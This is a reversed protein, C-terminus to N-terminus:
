AAHLQWIGANARQLRDTRRVTLDEISRANEQTSDRNLFWELLADWGVRSMKPIGRKTSFPKKSSIKWSKVRFDQLDRSYYSDAQNIEYLKKHSFTWWGLVPSKDGIAPLKYVPDVFKFLANALNFYGLQIANKYYATMAVVSGPQKPDFLKKIRIPTVDIGYYADMGCSERFLGMQYSKDTNVKFGQRILADCAENYLHKPIIIDDGYVYVSNLSEGQSMGNNLFRATILAWFTLAEVPFTLANGMPAFMSLKMRKKSFPLRMFESRTRFLGKQFDLPTDRFLDQVLHASVSDSAASLDITAWKQTKSGEQALNRPTDQDSFMVHGATMPHNEIYPYLWRRLAQQRAMLDQPEASIMRPGRSDKPVAYGIATPAQLSDLNWYYEWTDFRHAESIHYLNSTSWSDVELDIEYKPVYREWTEQREASVGPGPRIDYCADAKFGKLLTSLLQQAVYVDAMGQADLRGSNLSANREVLAREFAVLTRQDYPLQLKYFLAYVQRLSRICLAAEKPDNRLLQGTDVDFVRRLLAGTFAPLAGRRKFNSPTTFTGTELGLLLAKDLLPLTKTAFSIGENEVRVVITNIDADLERTSVGHLTCVDRVVATISSTVFRSAKLTGM